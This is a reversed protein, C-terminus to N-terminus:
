DPKKRQLSKAAPKKAASKKTASKKAATPKKAAAAPKAPAAPKAKVEALLGMEIGQIQTDLASRKSYLKQLDSVMRELRTM